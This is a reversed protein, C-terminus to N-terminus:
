ADAFRMEIPPTIARPEGNDSQAYIRQDNFNSFYVRGEHVVYSGGGYEHARTRANFPAPTVDSISGNVDRRVIVNRGGESPRMENWYITEGALAPQSLGVSERVIFDATIPSKWSGYPAITQQTMQTEKSIRWRKFEDGTRSKRCLLM